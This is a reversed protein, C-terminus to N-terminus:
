YNAWFDVVVVKGHLKRVAQALGDYKVVKVDVRAASPVFCCAAVILPFAIM